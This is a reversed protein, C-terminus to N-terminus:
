ASIIDIDAFADRGIDVTVFERYLESIKHSIIHYFMPSKNISSISFIEGGIKSGSMSGMGYILTPPIKFEFRTNDVNIVLEPDYKQIIHLSYKVTSLDSMWEGFIEIGIHRSIRTTLLNFGFATWEGPSNIDVRM